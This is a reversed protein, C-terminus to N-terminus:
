QDKNFEFAVACQKNLTEEDFGVRPSNELIEALYVHSCLGDGLSKIIKYRDFIEGVQLTQGEKYLFSQSSSVGGDIYQKTFM